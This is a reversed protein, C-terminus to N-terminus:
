TAKFSCKSQAITVIIVAKHLKSILNNLFSLSRRQRFNWRILNSVPIICLMFDLYFSFGTQRSFKNHEAVYYSSSFAFKVRINIRPFFFLQDQLFQCCGNSAEAHTSADQIIGPKKILIFIFFKADRNMSLFIVTQTDLVRDKRERWM